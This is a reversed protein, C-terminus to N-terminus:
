AKLAGITFPTAPAVDAGVTWFAEVEALAFTPEFATPSIKVYWRWKGQRIVWLAHM